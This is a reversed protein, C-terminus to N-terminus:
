LDIKYGFVPILGLLYKYVISRSAADYSQSIPNHHATANQVGLIASGTMHRYQVKWEVQVDLRFFAPLREGYIRSNDLVTRQQQISKALDIPTVRVGGTHVAKLDLSFTSPRKTGKIVWEKGMMFTLGTNSSFRTNRWIGDSPLYRAAYLSMTSVMYFRDNWTRELTLEVGYNRGKGTNALPELSYDDNLNLISYSTRKGANVPVNFLSQYYVEAKIHWNASLQEDYGLVWHQSRTFGLGKNALVTDAGVKIRAFYNGLPQMQSHIGYGLSLSRTNSFRWRLALRPDLSRTNNLMLQQAHLGAQFRWEPDIDWKWQVYGNVLRTSGNSRIRYQLVNSVTERQSLDFHKWTTYLGARLLHHANFKHDAAISLVTNWEKFRNLRTIILPGNYKDLRDDQERYESGNISLVSRLLTKKGILLQHTIGTAGTNAADLAGSRKSPQQAWEVSDRTAFDQQKSKGGFGFITFRGLKKTPLDINFSLDQFQIPADGINAGLKQVLSLFNYRYNILYSGEYKKSLYGETALDLGMISVIATHERKKNNGKRLHIDFVGSTANGYEAPFAATMLDANSLLQASLISIAGGSTGVRAFHNPNPIDVGELRWLLGNPANGRIIISNGDSSNNSIGAFGTAIRSLDNIGAAYRRAEDVSFTRASLLALQNVPRTKNKWNIVRVDDLRAVDEEMEINLMNEKGAEVAINRLTANKYGAFSVTIGYRGVPVQELTFSGDAATIVSRVPDTGLVVTAGALPRHLVLETVMGRVTQVPASQAAATLAVSSSFLLLVMALSGIRTGIGQMM